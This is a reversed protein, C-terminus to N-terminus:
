IFIAHKPECHYGAPHGFGIGDIQQGQKSFAHIEFEV